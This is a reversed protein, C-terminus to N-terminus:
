DLKSFQFKTASFFGKEPSFPTTSILSYYILLFVSISPLVVLVCTLNAVMMRSYGNGNSRAGELHQLSKQQAELLRLEEDERERLEEFFEEEMRKFGNQRCSTGLLLLGRFFAASFAVVFLTPAIAWIMSLWVLSPLVDCFSLGSLFSNGFTESTSIMNVHRLIAIMSFNGLLTTLCFEWTDGNWYDNALLYAVCFPWVLQGVILSSRLIRHKMQYRPPVDTTRKPTDPDTPALADRQAKRSKATSAVAGTTSPLDKDEIYEVNQSDTSELLPLTLSGLTQKEEM